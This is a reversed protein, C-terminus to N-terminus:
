KDGEDLDGIEEIFSDILQSHDGANLERGIMKGALAVSVDAIQEKIEQEARRRESKAEEEASRIMRAARERTQDLIERSQTNANKVANEVIDDARSRADDMKQQWEAKLAAAEEKDSQAQEYQSDVAAKREALVKQVPQYLFHKFVLFLVLLNCLSILINGLNVSIIELSQM